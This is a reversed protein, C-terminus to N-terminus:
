IWYASLSTAGDTGTGAVFFSESGVLSNTISKSGANYTSLNSFAFLKITAADNTITDTIVITDPRDIGISEPYIMRNTIVGQTKTFNMPGGILSSRTPLITATTVV